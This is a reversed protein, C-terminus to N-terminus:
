LCVYQGKKQSSRELPQTLEHNHEVVCSEEIDCFSLMSRLLNLFEKWYPSYIMSLIMIYFGQERWCYIM